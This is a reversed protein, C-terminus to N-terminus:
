ARLSRQHHRVAGTLHWAPRSEPNLRHPKRMSIHIIDGGGARIMGYVTHSFSPLTRDADHRGRNKRPGVLARILGARDTVAPKDIMVPKGYECLEMVDMKEDNIAARHNRRRRRGADVGSGGDAGPRVPGRPHPSVDSQGTRVSRCMRLGSGADGRYVHRHAHQRGIIGFKRANGTM